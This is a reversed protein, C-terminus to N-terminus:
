KLFPDLPNMAAVEFACKRLEAVAKASGSLSFSSVVVNDTAFSITQAKAVDDLLLKELPESNFYRAGGEVVGVTFNKTGWGDDMRWGSNFLYIDLKIKQDHEVSTAKTNSFSVLSLKTKANYHVSLTVLRDTQHEDYLKMAFCSTDSPVIRWEGVEVPERATASLPIASYMLFIAAWAKMEVGRDSILDVDV